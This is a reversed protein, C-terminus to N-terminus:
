GQAVSSLATGNKMDIGTLFILLMLPLLVLVVYLVAHVALRWGASFLSLDYYRAGTVVLYGAYVILVPWIPVVDVTANVAALVMLLTFGVAHAWM